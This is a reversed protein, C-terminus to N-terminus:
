TNLLLNVCQCSKSERSQKNYILSERFNKYRREYDPPIFGSCPRIGQGSIKCVHAVVKTANWGTFTNSGRPCWECLWKKKQDDSTFQRIKACSWITTIPPLALVLADAVTNGAVATTPAGGSNRSAEIAMAAARLHADDDEESM